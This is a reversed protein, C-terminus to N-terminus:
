SPPSPWFAVPKCLCTLTSCDADSSGSAKRPSYFKMCEKWPQGLVQTDPNLFLLVDSSTHEYGLNNAQAFGLNVPSAILHIDERLQLKQVSDDSSANDVVVIEYSLGRAAAHISSICAATYVASNWNVIVISLIM